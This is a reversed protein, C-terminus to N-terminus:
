FMNSIMDGLEGVGERIQDFDNRSKWELVLGSKKVQLAMSNEKLGGVTKWIGGPVDSFEEELNEVLRGSHLYIGNFHADNVFPGALEVGDADAITGGGPRNGSLYMGMMEKSFAMGSLVAVNDMAYLRPVATSPGREMEIEYVDIGGGKDIEDTNISVGGAQKKVLSELGEIAGDLSEADKFQLVLAYRTASATNMANQAGSGGGSLGALNYVFLGAQGSLKEIVDDELDLKQDSAKQLRNLGAELEKKPEETLNSKFSKWFKQPKIALRIGGIMQKDAFKKWDFEQNATMREDLWDVGDSGLGMWGRYTFQETSEFSGAFGVGNSQDELNSCVKGKFLGRDGCWQSEVMEFFDDAADSDSNFFLGFSKQDLVTGQFKSFGKHDALSEGSDRKKSFEVVTERTPELDGKNHLGIAINGNGFAWALPPVDSDDEKKFSRVKTGDIKESEVDVGSFLKPLYENVKAKDDVGALLVAVKRDDGALTGALPGDYDFGSDTKLKKLTDFDVENNEEAKEKMDEWSSMLTGSDDLEEKTKNWSDILPKSFKGFSPVTLVYPTDNELHKAVSSVQAAGSGGGGCMGLAGCGLPLAALVFLAVAVAAFRFSTIRSSKWDM